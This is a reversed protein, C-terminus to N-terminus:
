HKAPAAPAVPKAPAAPKPPPPQPAGPPLPPEGALAQVVFEPKWLATQWAQANASIYASKFGVFQPDSGTYYGPASVIIWTDTRPALQALTALLQGKVGDWLRITGDASSTAVHSDPSVAVGYVWDGHGTLTYPQNVQDKLFELARVAGDSCAMWLRNTKGDWAMSLPRGPNTDYNYVGNGTERNRIRLGNDNNGGVLMVMNKGDEGGFGLGFIGDAMDLRAEAKWDSTQWVRTSRDAGATALLTGDANFCVAQVYGNHGTITTVLSHDALRYVYVNRDACAAALLKGDPSLALANVVDKPQDFTFAFQGSAVDVLRVAGRKGATGEGVALTKGGDLFLLARVSEGLQGVALRRGLRAGGLDWLLIEEYGASALLKGDPTFALAAITPLASAGVECTFTPGIPKPPDGPAPPPTTVPPKYYAWTVPISLRYGVATQGGALTSLCVAALLAPALGRRAM